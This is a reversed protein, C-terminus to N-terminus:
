CSKIIPIFTGLRSSRGHSGLAQADRFLLGLNFFRGLADVRAALGLGFVIAQEASTVLSPRGFLCMLATRYIPRHEMFLLHAQKWQM